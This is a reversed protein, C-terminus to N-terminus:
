GDHDAVAPGFRAVAERVQALVDAELQEYQARRARPARPYAMRRRARELDLLPRVVARFVPDRRYWSKAYRIGLCGKCRWIGTAADLRLILVRRGCGCRALWRPGYPRPDPVLRITQTGGGRRVQVTVSGDPEPEWREVLRRLRAARLAPVEEVIPHRRRRTPPPSKSLPRM